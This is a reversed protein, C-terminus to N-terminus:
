HRGAESAELLLDRQTTTGDLRAVHQAPLRLTSLWHFAAKALHILQLNRPNERRQSDTLSKVLNYMKICSQYGGGGFHITLYGRAKQELGCSEQRATM